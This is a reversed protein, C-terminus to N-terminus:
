IVKFGMQQKENKLDNATLVAKREFDYETVNKTIPFITKGNLDWKLDFVHGKNAVPIKTNCRFKLMHDDKYAVAVDHVPEIPTVVPIVSFTITIDTFSSVSQCIFICYLCKIRITYFIQGNFQM